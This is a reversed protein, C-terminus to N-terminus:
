LQKHLEGEIDFLSTLWEVNEADPLCDGDVDNLMWSEFDPLGNFEMVAQDSVAVNGDFSCKMVMNEKVQVLEEEIITGDKITEPMVSAAVVSSEGVPFVVKDCRIVMPRNLTKNNTAQSSPYTSSSPLLHDFAPPRQLNSPQHIQSLHMFRSKKALTTNWYNKIENDTRGPLRGAILSWRNGLLKHLRIILDDEEESFNGRKVDPRLYNLWRLRCSKGSRKLGAIHPVTTWKGEGYTNVYTILLKDEAATWAGKNLGEKSCCSDREM